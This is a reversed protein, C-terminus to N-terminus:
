TSVLYNTKVILNNYLCRYFLSKTINLLSEPRHPRHGADESLIDSKWLHKKLMKSTFHEKIIVTKGRQDLDCYHKIEKDKVGIIGLNVIVESKM